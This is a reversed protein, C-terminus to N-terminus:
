GTKDLEQWQGVRGLEAPGAKTSGYIRVHNHPPAMKSMSGWRM